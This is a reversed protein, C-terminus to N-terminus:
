RRAYKRCQRLLDLFLERAHHLQHLLGILIQADRLVAVPKRQAVSVPLLLVDIVVGHPLEALAHQAFGHVREPQRIDVRGALRGEVTGLEIDLEGVHHPVFLSVRGDLHIEVQRALEVQIVDADSPLSCRGTIIWRAMTLVMSRM